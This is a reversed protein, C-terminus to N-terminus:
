NLWNFDISCCWAQSDRVQFTALFDHQEQVIAKHMPMDDTCMESVRTRRSPTVTVLSLSGLIHLLFHLLLQKQLASPCKLPILLLITCHCQLRDLAFTPFCSQNHQGAVLSFAMIWKKCHKCMSSHAHYRGPVWGIQPHLCWHQCIVQSLCRRCVSDCDTVPVASCPQFIRCFLCWCVM